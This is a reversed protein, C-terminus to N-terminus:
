FPVSCGGSGVVCRGNSDYGGLGSPQRGPLSTAQCSGVSPVVGWSTSRPGEVSGGSGVLPWVVLTLGVVRAVRSLHRVKQM